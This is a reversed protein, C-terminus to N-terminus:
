QQGGFRRLKFYPSGRFENLYTDALHGQDRNYVAVPVDKINFTLAYGYILLQIM